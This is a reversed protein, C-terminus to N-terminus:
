QGSLNEMRATCRDLAQGTLGVNTCQERSDWLQLPINRQRYSNTRPAIGPDAAACQAGPTNACDGYAMKRAGTMTNGIIGAQMKPAVAAALGQAQEGMAGLDPRLQGDGVEGFINSQAENVGEGTALATGSIYAGGVMGGLAGAGMTGASAVGGSVGASAGFMPMQFMLGMGMTVIALLVGIGMVTFSSKSQSWQYMMEEDIPLNGGNWERVSVGSWAVHEPADCGAGAATPLICIAAETPMSDMNKPVALYWKPKAFGKVTTTCKKKFFSSSCSQNQDFRTDPIYILGFAAKYHQMAYGVAVQVAQFSVNRFTPDSAQNEAGNAVDGFLDFPNHGAILDNAREDPTMHYRAVRWHRGHYPTFDAVYVHVRNDMGKEVKQVSIRAVANVPDYAAFVQSYSGGPPIKRLSYDVGAERTLGASVNASTMWEPGSIMRRDTGNVANWAGDAIESWNDKPVWVPEPNTASGGNLTAGIRLWNANLRSAHTAWTRDVGRIDVVAATAQAPILISQLTILVMLLRAIVKSLLDM